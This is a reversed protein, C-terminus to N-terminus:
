EENEYELEQLDELNTTEMCEQFAADAEESRCHFDDEPFAYGCESVHGEKVKTCHGEIQTYEDVTLEEAVEVNTEEIDGGIGTFVRTQLFAGQQFVLLLIVALVLAAVVIWIRKSSSTFFSPQELM